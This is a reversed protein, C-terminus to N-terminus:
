YCNNLEMVGLLTSTSHIAIPTDRRDGINWTSLWWISDDRMHASSISTNEHHSGSWITNKKIMLFYPLTNGGGKWKAVLGRGDEIERESSNHTPSYALPSCACTRERRVIKASAVKKQLLISGGDYADDWRENENLESKKRNLRTNNDRAYWEHNLNCNLWRLLVCCLLESSSFLM